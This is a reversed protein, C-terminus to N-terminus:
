EADPRRLDRLECGNELRRSRGDRRVAVVGQDHPSHRGRVDAIERVPELNRQVLKRWLSATELGREHVQRSVSDLVARVPVAPRVVRDGSHDVFEGVLLLSGIDLMENLSWTALWGATRRDVGNRAVNIDSHAFNTPTREVQTRSRRAATSETPMVDNSVQAVPHDHFSHVSASLATKSGSIVDNAPRNNPPMRPITIATRITALSYAEPMIRSLDSSCVDSSWDR